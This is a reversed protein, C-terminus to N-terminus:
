LINHLNHKKLVKEYFNHCGDKPSKDSIELNNFHLVFTKHHCFINTLM